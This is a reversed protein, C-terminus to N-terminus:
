HKGNKDREQMEYSFSCLKMDAQKQLETYLIVGMENLKVEFQIYKEPKGDKGIKRVVEGSVVVGIKRSGNNVTVDQGITIDCDIEENKMVIGTIIM